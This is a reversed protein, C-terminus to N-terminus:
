VPFLRAFADAFVALLVTWVGVGVLIGGSWRKVLAARAGIRTVVTEQAAGIGLGLIFLLAVIVAGAVTFAVTAAAAGGM